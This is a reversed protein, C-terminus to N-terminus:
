SETRPPPHQKMYKRVTPWEFTFFPSKHEPEREEKRFAAQKSPRTIWMGFILVFLGAAICLGTILIARPEM